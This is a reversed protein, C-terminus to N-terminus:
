KSGGDAGDCVYQVVPGAGRAVYPGGNCPAAYDCALFLTSLILTLRIM